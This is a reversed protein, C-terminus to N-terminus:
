TKKKLVFGAWTALSDLTEVRITRKGTLWRSLVGPDVGAEDAISRLSQDKLAKELNKRLTESVTM